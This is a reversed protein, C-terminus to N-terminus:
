GAPLRRPCALHIGLAALRFASHPWSGPRPGRGAPMPASTWEDSKRGAARGPRETFAITGARRSRSPPGRGPSTRSSRCKRSRGCRRCGAFASTTPTIRRRGTVRFLRSRRRDPRTLWKVSAMGYWGPVIARVPFGHAAPLDAGNMRFALLVDEQRARALPLSRAFSVPGTPRPEATVDGRDAGELVVEVAGAARGRGNWCRRRAAGGDVGRQRGGGPALGAGAAAAGDLGPRQRCMGADGTVTAPRCYRLQDYTLELERTVAGEVRLRWTRADLAPVAFHNRCSSVTM